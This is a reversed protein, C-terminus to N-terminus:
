DIGMGACVVKVVQGNSIESRDILIDIRNVDIEEPTRNRLNIESKFVTILSTFHFVSNCTFVVTHLEGCHVTEELLTKLSFGLRRM